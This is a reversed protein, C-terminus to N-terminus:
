IWYTRSSQIKNTQYTKNYGRKTSELWSAEKEIGMRPFSFYRDYNARCVPANSVAADVHHQLGGRPAKGSVGEVYCSTIYSDQEYLARDLLICGTYLYRLSLTNGHLRIRSRELWDCVELLFIFIWLIWVLACITCVTDRFPNSEM